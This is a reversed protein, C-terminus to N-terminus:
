PTTVAPDPAPVNTIKVVAEVYPLFLTARVKGRVLVADSTFEQSRDVEVTVDRRRVVAVQSASYVVMTSNGGTRGVQTTLFTDPTGDPRELPENSGDEKKLLGLATNVWPHTVAVYPGPVSKGAIVGVARILADYNDMSGAADLTTVGPYNVLGPFGKAHNGVLLERDLKLALIQQMHGQVLRILSPDSDEFAESSGRALSKIAKPTAEHDDLDIDSPTIEELENYFDATMDGVLRPWKISRRDTPIVRVGSQLVVAADRLRDWLYTSLEPPTVPMAPGDAGAGTLETLSRQEGKPVAAMADLVREEVPRDGSAGSRSEVRLGGTKKDAM